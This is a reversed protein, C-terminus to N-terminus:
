EVIDSIESQITGIIGYMKLFDAQIRRRDEILDDDSTYNRGNAVDCLLAKAAEDLAKHARTLAMYAAVFDSRPNGNNNIKAKM